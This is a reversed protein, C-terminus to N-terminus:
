NVKSPIFGNKLMLANELKCILHLYVYRLVAEVDATKNNKKKRFACRSHVHFRIHTM